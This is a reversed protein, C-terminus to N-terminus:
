LHDNVGKMRAERNKQIRDELVDDQNLFAEPSGYQKLITAFAVISMYWNSRMAMRLTAPGGYRTPVGIVLEDAAGDNIIGHWFWPPNILLDGPQLLTTYRELKNFWPSPQEGQKGVLTHTHASFGNVNISPLLYPTQSPPIFWWRKTGAMQRFLNVGIAAHIDSGMDKLGMFIQTSVRNGPEFKDMGPVDVMDRLAPNRGFFKPLVLFIFHIEQKLKM